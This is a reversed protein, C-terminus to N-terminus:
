PKKNEKKLFLLLVTVALVAILLVLGLLPLKGALLSKRNRDKEMTLFIIDESLRSLAATDLGHYYGRVHRNKDILVFHDTHLFNSDVAGGDQALLKLHNISLDYIAERNGTLLWWNQPNVQFRSAWNRLRSVSDREPDISISLFHVFNAERNGVKESSRIGDQLSKMNTTMRPCITPCHTFFFSAVVTKGELDKWTVNQGLQNTLQFDPVKHWVTDSYRKGNETRSIISDAFYHRPMVTAGDTAGKLAVYGILPLLVAILIGYIAKKSM